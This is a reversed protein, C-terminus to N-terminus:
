EHRARSRNCSCGSGGEIRSPQGSLVVGVGSAVRNRSVIRMRWRWDGRDLGLWCGSDYRRRWDGGAWNNCFGHGDGDILRAWSGTPGSPACIIRRAMAMLALGDCINIDPSIDHSNGNGVLWSRWRWLRGGAGGAAHDDGTSGSLRM